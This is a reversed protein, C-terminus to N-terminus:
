LSMTRGGDVPLNIGTIYSALDSALFGAAYAIEQPKGFRGLPISRKTQEVVDEIPKNSNLAKAEMISRLRATETAGPLINNVTIGFPALEGALTKAWNAMAGRVTNSVGLGPIPQKVSTSVINIIRGFKESKMGPLVAQVLIHSCILHRTFAETFEEIKAEYLLGGPPGGTNNVLIHVPLLEPLRQELIQKLRDPYGFDAVMYTHKQQHATSLEGCAIKLAPENRALLIVEAGQDAFHTAIARGIGQSSGCVLARKGELLRM